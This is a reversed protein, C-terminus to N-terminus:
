KKTFKFELSIDEAEERMDGGLVAAIFEGKGFITLVNGAISYRVIVTKGNVVISLQDKKASYDFEKSISLGDAGALNVIFKGGDTFSIYAASFGMEESIFAKDM